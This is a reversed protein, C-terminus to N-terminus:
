NKRLLKLAEIYQCKVEMADLGIADAICDFSKNETRRMSVIKEKVTDLKNLNISNDEIRDKLTISQSAHIVQKLQRASEQLQHAITNVPYGLRTAIERYSFGYKVALMVINQKSVPLYPIANYVLKKRDEQLQVLEMENQDYQTVQYAEDAFAESFSTCRINYFQHQKSRLWAFCKWVLNQRILFYIHKMNKMSTRHEWSHLIAEQLICSVVFENNVIRLGAHQLACWAHQYIYVLSREGGSVFGWHHRQNDANEEFLINYM